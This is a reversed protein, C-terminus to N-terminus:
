IPIYKDIILQNDEFIVTILGNTSYTFLFVKPM